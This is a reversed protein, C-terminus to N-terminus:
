LGFNNRVKKNEKKQVADVANICANVYDICELIDNFKRDM